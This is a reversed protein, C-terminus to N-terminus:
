KPVDQEGDWTADPWLYFGGDWWGFSHGEPAINENMWNEVEDAAMDLIEEEHETLSPATSPMECAMKKRALTVIEDNDYGHDGAISISLALAYQGCADSVIEGVMRLTMKQIKSM